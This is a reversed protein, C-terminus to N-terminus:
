SISFHLTYSSGAQFGSITQSLTVGGTTDGGLAIFQQGDPAPGVTSINNGGAPESGLVGSLAWGTVQGGSTGIYEHFGSPSTWDDAEFSGNVMIPNAQAAITAFAALIGAAIFPVRRYRVAFINQSTRM